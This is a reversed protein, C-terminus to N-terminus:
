ETFISLKVSLSLTTHTHDKLSKVNRSYTGNTSLKKKKVTEGRRWTLLLTKMKSKNGIDNEELQEERIHMNNFFRHRSLM